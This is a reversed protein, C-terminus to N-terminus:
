LNAILHLLRAIAMPTQNCSELLGEIFFVIDCHWREIVTSEKM